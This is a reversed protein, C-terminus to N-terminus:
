QSVKTKKHIRNHCGRCVIMLNELVNNKWDGDIHHVLLKDKRSCLSCKQELSMAKKRYDDVIRASQRTTEEKWNPNKQGLKKERQKQIYEPKDYSNNRSM